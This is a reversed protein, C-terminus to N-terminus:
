KKLVEAVRSIASVVEDSSANVELMVNGAEKALTVCREADLLNLAVSKLSISTLLKNNNVKEEIENTAANINQSLTRVENAVVAFSRGHQGARAAEIAANLALLNTQNAIQRIRNVVDGISASIESLENINHSIEQIEDALKHITQVSNETVTAGFHTRERTQLAVQYAHHTAEHEQQNKEVQATVDTALKMIEYLEGAENFVPNYTARLWVSNGQKTLRQFQGSVFEGQNLTQWFRQYEASNRSEPLCFQRHHYGTIEDARYGMIHLFNTNASLVQGQLNFTIMAMSRNIAATMARQEQVDLIHPTIDQGLKIIKIVQGSASKVPVYHAELWVPRGNKGIRLFKDNFSEGQNLRQWFAQYQPSHSYDTTCFIRHHQGTIEALDYGMCALFLTNATLIKGEPTFEVTAIASHLAHLTIASHQRKNSTIRFLNKKFIM